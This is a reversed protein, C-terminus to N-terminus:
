VVSKRDLKVSDSLLAEESSYAFAYSVSFVCIALCLYGVKFKLSAFRKSINRKM